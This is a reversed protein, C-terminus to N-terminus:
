QKIYNLIQNVRETPPGTVSLYSVGRLRNQFERDVEERWQENVSRVGDDVASFEIPFYVYHTYEERVQKWVEELYTMTRSPVRDKMVTSYVVVDLFCRDLVLHYPILLAKVHFVSIALQTAEEGEENIPYGFERVTRTSENIFEWMPLRDRLLNFVTTKGTSSAGVLAVRRKM